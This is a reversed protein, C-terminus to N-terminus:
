SIWHRTLWAKTQVTYTKKEIRIFTDGAKTRHVLLCAIYPWALRRSFSCGLDEFNRSGASRLFILGIGVARNLHSVM